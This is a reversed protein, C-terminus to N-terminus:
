ASSGRAKFCCAVTSSAARTTASAELRGPGKGGARVWKEHANLSVRDVAGQAPAPQAPEELKWVRPADDAYRKALALLRDLEGQMWARQYRERRAGRDKREAEDAEHEPIIQMGQPVFKQLEYLCTIARDIAALSARWEIPKLADPEERVFPLIRDLEGIFKGVPIIASPRVDGLQRPQVEAQNPNAETEWGYERKTECRPCVGRVSWSTGAGYLEYKPPEMTKCSPCPELSAAFQMETASRAQARTSGLAEPM